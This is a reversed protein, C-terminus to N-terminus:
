RPGPFRPQGLWETAGSETYVAVAFWDPRIPCLAPRGDEGALQEDPPYVSVSQIRELHGRVMLLDSPRVKKPEIRRFVETV